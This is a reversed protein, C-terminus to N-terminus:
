SIAEQDPITKKYITWLASYLGSFTDISANEITASFKLEIIETGEINHSNINETIREGPKINSLFANQLEKYANQLDKPMVHLYIDILIISNKNETKNKYSCNFIPVEKSDRVADKLQEKHPPVFANTPKPKQHM